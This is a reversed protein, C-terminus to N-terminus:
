RSLQRHREARAAKGARQYHDALLAHAPKYAPDRQLVGELWQCAQEGQGNRLLIEAVACPLALDNPAKALAALLEGMRDQDAEIEKLRALCDAAERDRGLRQLCLYLDYTPARERPAVALARRFWQAAAEVQGADWAVKGYEALARAHNPQGALVRDLLRGAEDRQGLLRRCRALGVLVAPDEPRRQRLWEYHDVAEAPASGQALMDALGLRAAQHDPDVVVARGYLARAQDIHGLSEHAWGAWALFDANHPADPLLRELCGLAAPWRCTRLYGQALAELILPTDTYGREVLAGLYGEVGALEGRQARALADELAIAEPVGGLDRCRRLLRDTEGYDRTLRAARAALLHAQPDDPWVGLCGELRQRAQAFRRAALDDQAARYQYEAWAYLGAVYSVGGILLLLTAIVLLRVPRSLPRKPRNSKSNMEPPQIAIVNTSANPPKVLQVV